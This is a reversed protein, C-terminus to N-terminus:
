RPHGVVVIRFPEGDEKHYTAALRAVSATLERSFSNRDADTAFAITTELALTQTAPDLDAVDEILRSGLAILYEASFRDQISAPDARLEGLARPGIVYARATSRYFREVVSGRRKEEVMEVLGAAELERMHYNLHQRPIGLTKSLSTPSSPQELRELIKLRIPQLAISAREADHIVEVRESSAV